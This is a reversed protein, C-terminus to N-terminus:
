VVTVANIYGGRLISYIEDIEQKTANIGEIHIDDVVTYGKFESLKGSINSPYGMVKYADSAMNQRPIEKILYPRQVSMLGIAGSIGGSRNVSPKTTMVDMVGQGFTGSMSSMSSGNIGSAMSPATRMATSLFITSANTSSVPVQTAVNGTFTYLVSDGVKLFCVCDGTLADIHYTVRLKKKTIDDASLQHIGCYPLYIQFKTMPSYDLASGYFETIDMEGCDIEYYQTSMKTMQVPTAILGIKAYELSGAPTIPMISLSIIAEMPDAFLKKFQDLNFDTSWLYNSFAELQASTPSYMTILGVDSASISPLEPIQIPDSHSDFDGFGGQKDTYQGPQYPDDTKERIKGGFAEWVDTWASSPLTPAYTGGIKNQGYNSYLDTLLAIFMRGESDDFFATWCARFSYGSEVPLTKPVYLNQSTNSTYVVQDALDTIIFKVYVYTYEFEFHTRNEVGAVEVYCKRDVTQFLLDRDGVVRPKLLWDYSTYTQVVSDMDYPGSSSWAGMAATIMSDYIDSRPTTSSVFPIKWAM